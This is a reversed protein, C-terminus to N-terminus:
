VTVGARVPQVQKMLFKSEPLAPIRTLSVHLDQQPVTYTMERVLFRVALRLAEITLWEGPCRHGNGFDGGGQPIFNYPSENWSQFREPRFVDPDKWIRPDHNTGYLDLLVMSGKPIRYGHWIVTHRARAGLLPAFPYYRRLEQVFFELFDDDHQLRERYAPYAHLALAAFTIFYSMAVTPRIFNILEVAAIRPPLEHGNERYFAIHYAACDKSVSVAGRRIEEILSALWKEARKRALRGCWHRPGVAGFADVMAGFDFARARAEEEALPVGVWACMARCILEQAEEFLIVTEQKSWKQIARQWEEATLTLIDQRKAPTMLSLFLHKRQWHDVGDLGQVGGVGFLSAQIRHPLVGKRKFLAPNYFCRAAEEGGFCIMKKGLLRTQFMDTGYQQCRKRIFEYGDSRLLTLTGDLTKDRPIKKQRSM